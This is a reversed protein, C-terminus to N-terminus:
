DRGCEGVELGVVGEDGGDIAVAANVLAVLVVIGGWESAPRKDRM